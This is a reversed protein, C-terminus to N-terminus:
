RYYTVEVTADTGGSRQMNINRMGEVGHVWFDQSTSSLSIGGTASPTGGLEDIWIGNAGEVRIRASKAKMRMTTGINGDDEYTAKTLPKNTNSVTLRERAFARQDHELDSV